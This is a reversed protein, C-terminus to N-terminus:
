AIIDAVYIKYGAEEVEARTFERAEAFRISPIVALITDGVDGTVNIRAHTGPIGTAADVFPATVAHGVAHIIERRTLWMNRNAEIYEHGVEKVIMRAGEGMMMPSITTTIYLKRM